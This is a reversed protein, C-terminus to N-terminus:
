FIKTITSIKGTALNNVDFVRQNGFSWTLFVSELLIGDPLHRRASLASLSADVHWHDNQDFELFKLKPSREENDRNIEFLIM